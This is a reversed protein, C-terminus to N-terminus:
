SGAMWTLTVAQSFPRSKAACPSFHPIGRLETAEKEPPFNGFAALRNELMGAVLGQIGRRSRGSAVASPRNVGRPFRGHTTKNKGQKENGESGADGAADDLAAAAM